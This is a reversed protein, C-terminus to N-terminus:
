DFPNWWGSKKVKPKRKGTVTYRTPKIGGKSQKVNYGAENLTILAKKTPRAVKGNSM